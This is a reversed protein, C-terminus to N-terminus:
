AVVAHPQPPTREPRRPPNDLFRQLREATGLDTWGCPPVRLVSLFTTAHQLVDRSLDMLPLGRYLEQAEPGGQLKRSLRQFARLIDPFVRGVLALLVHARAALIFSNILAGDTILERVRMDPPKELFCRVNAIPAPSAPLIWGYGRQQEGPCMGLLVVPAVGQQVARVAGTLAGHLVGENAVYHDSPLLVVPDTTIGRSQIEVAARLVGAATGRNEPQVLVNGSPVDALAGTWFARHADKVAVLVRAAPAIRRARALAWRVMPERGDCSWYQKPVFGGDRGRTLASVRDGDGGALVVAWPSGVM